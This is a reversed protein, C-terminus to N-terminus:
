KWRDWYLGGASTGGLALLIVVVGTATLSATELTPIIMASVTILAVVICHLLAKKSAIHATIYGGIFMTVIFLPIGILYRFIWSIDNLVAYDKAMANYGVAVFIYLLQLCLIAIIIFLSGAIIATFSKM